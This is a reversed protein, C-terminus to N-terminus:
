TRMGSIPLPLYNNVPKPLYPASSAAGRRVARPCPPSWRLHLLFSVVYGGGFAPAGEWDLSSFSTVVVLEQSRTLDRGAYIVRNSIRIIKSSGINQPWKLRFFLFSVLHCCPLVHSPDLENEVKCAWPISTSPLVKLSPQGGPCAPPAPSLVTFFSAM